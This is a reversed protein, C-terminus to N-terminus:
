TRANKAASEKAAKDKHLKAQIDKDVEDIVLKESGSHAEELHVALTKESPLSLKCSMCKYGVEVSINPDLRELRLMSYSKPDQIMAVDDKWIPPLYTGRLENLDFLDGEIFGGAKITVTEGKFINKYDHVNDNWLKARNAAM